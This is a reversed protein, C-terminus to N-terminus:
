HLTNNFVGTRYGGIDLGVFSFGIAKMKRGIAKIVMPSSLSPLDHMSIEIRAMQGHHRLRVESFGLSRLFAEGRAIQSLMRATITSGYPIRSALCPSAPRDWTPLGFVRSGQRIDSKTFGMEVLPHAIQSETAAQLGPRYDALDDVNIGDAISPLALRKAERRCIMYLSDKCFYCRNKPNAAYQPIALEDHRIKIFQVKLAAALTTAQQEDDPPTSASVTMLAVVKERLVNAAVALLFSSDVGGSFAILTPGMQLLHTELKQIKKEITHLAQLM